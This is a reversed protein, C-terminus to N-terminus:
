KKKWAKIIEERSCHEDTDRDYWASDHYQFNDEVRSGFEKMVLPFKYIDKFNM